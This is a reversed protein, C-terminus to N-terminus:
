GISELECPVEWYTNFRWQFDWTTNIFRCKKTRGTLPDVYDFYWTGRGNELLWDEFLDKNAPSGITLTGKRTRIAKSRGPRSKSLGSDMPSREIKYDLPEGYGDALFKVFDPLTAM